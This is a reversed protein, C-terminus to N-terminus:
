KEWIYKMMPLERPQENLRQRLQENQAELRRVQAEREEQLRRMEMDYRARAEAQQQQRGFEELVNAFARESGAMAPGAMLLVVMAVIMKKM